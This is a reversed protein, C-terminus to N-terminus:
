IVSIVRIAIKMVSGGDGVGFMAGTSQVSSGSGDHGLKFLTLALQKEVPIQKSCNKGHFIPNDKILDLIKQFDNRSVRLFYKFRDENLEPLINLYWDESKPLMLRPVANRIYTLMVIDQVADDFVRAMKTYDTTLIEESALVSLEEILKRKNSKKPM